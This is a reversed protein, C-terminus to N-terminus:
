VIRTSHIINIAQKRPPSPLLLFSKHGKKKKCLYVGFMWSILIQGVYLGKVQELLGSNVRVVTLNKQKAM